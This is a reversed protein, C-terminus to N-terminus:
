RPEIWRLRTTLTRDMRDYDARANKGMHWEDGGSGQWEGAYYDPKLWGAIEGTTMPQKDARQVLQYVVQGAFLGYWKKENAMWVLVVYHGSNYTRKELGILSYSPVEKGKSEEIAAPEGYRKLLKDETDYLDAQVTM